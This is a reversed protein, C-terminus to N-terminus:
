IRVHKYVEQLNKDLEYKECINLIAFWEKVEEPMDDNGISRSFNYLDMNDMQIGDFAELVKRCPGIQWASKFNRFSKTAPLGVMQAMKMGVRSIGKTENAHKSLELLDVKESDTAPNALGILQDIRRFCNQKIKSRLYNCYNMMPRFMIREAPECRKNLRDMYAHLCHEPKDLHAEYFFDVIAQKVENVPERAGKHLRIIALVIRENFLTLQPEIGFLSDYWFYWEHAKLRDDQPEPKTNVAEVEPTLCTFAGSLAFLLTLASFLNLKAM